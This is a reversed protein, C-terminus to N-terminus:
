RHNKHGADQLPPNRIIAIITAACKMRPLQLPYGKKLLPPSLTLIQINSPPPRHFTSHPIRFTSRAQKCALQRLPPCGRSLGRM